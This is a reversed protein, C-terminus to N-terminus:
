GFLWDYKNKLRNEYVDKSMYNGAIILNGKGDLTLNSFALVKEDGLNLAYEFDLRESKYDIKYLYAQYNNRYNESVYLYM